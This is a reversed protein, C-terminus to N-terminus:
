RLGSMNQSASDPEVSYLHSISEGALRHWGTGVQDSEIYKEGKLASGDQFTQM